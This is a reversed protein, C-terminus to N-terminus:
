NKADEERITDRYVAANMSVRVVEDFVESSAAFIEICAEVSFPLVNANDKDMVGSWGAVVTEAYLRHMLGTMVDKDMKDQQLQYRYPKTLAEYRTTFPTNSGGARRVTMTTMEKRVNMGFHVPVGEVELNKNTVFSTFLNIGSTDNM